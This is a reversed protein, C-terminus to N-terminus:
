SLQVRLSVSERAETRVVRFRVVARAADPEDPDPGVEVSEVRIRPEWRALAQIVTEEILRHVDATNPQFLFRRLGGGFAPNMVREGRETGLIVRISQHVNEVGSSWAWRGDAGIGPPFAFGRGLADDGGASM